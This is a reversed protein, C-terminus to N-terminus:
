ARMEKDAQMELSLVVAYLQDIASYARRCPAVMCRIDRALRRCAKAEEIVLHLAIAQVWAQLRM